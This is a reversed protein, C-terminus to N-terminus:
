ERKVRNKINHTISTLAFIRQCAITGYSFIYIWDALDISNWESYLNFEIIWKHFVWSRQAWNLGFCCYIRRDFYTCHVCSRTNVFNDIRYSMSFVAFSYLLRMPSFFFLWMSLDAISGTVDRHDFHLVLKWTTYFSQIIKICSDMIMINVSPNPKKKKKMRGLLFIIPFVHHGLIINLIISATRWQEYYQGKHIM